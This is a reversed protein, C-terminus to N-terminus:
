YPSNSFTCHHTMIYKCGKVIASPLPMKNELDRLIIINKKVIDENIEYANLFENFDTTKYCQVVAFKLNDLVLLNEIRAFTLWYSARDTEITLFIGPKSTICDLKVTKAKQVFIVLCGGGKTLRIIDRLLFERQTDYQCKLHDARSFYSRQAYTRVFIHYTFM